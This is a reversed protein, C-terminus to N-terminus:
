ARFHLAANYSGNTKVEFSIWFDNEPFYCTQYTQYIPDFQFYKWNSRLILSWLCFIFEFRMKVEFMKWRSEWASLPCLARWAGIWVGLELLIIWVGLSSAGVLSLSLDRVWFVWSRRVVLSDCWHTAGGWSGSITAGRVWSGRTVSRWDCWRTANCVWSSHTAGRRDCWRTAGHVWSGTVSRTRMRTQFKQLLIQKHNQNKQQQQTTHTTTNQHNEQQTTTSFLM